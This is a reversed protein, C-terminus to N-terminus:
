QDCNEAAAPPREHREQVRRREGSRFLAKFM